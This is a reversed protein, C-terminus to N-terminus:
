KGSETTDPQSALAFQQALKSGALAYNKGGICVYEPKVPEIWQCVDGDLKKGQDQWAYFAHWFSSRMGPQKDKIDGARNTVSPGFYPHMEFDWRRGKADVIVRQPGGLSIYIAMRTM